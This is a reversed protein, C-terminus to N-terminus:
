IVSNGRKSVSSIKTRYTIIREAASSRTGGEVGLPMMANQLMAGANNALIPQGYKNFPLILYTLLNTPHAISLENPIITLGDNKKTHDDGTFNDKPQRV